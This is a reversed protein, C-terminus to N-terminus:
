STVGTARGQGRGHRGRRSRQRTEWPAIRARRLILGLTGEDVSDIPGGFDAEILIRRPQAVNTRGPSRGLAHELETPRLLKHAMSEQAIRAVLAPSM